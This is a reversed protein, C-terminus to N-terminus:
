TGPWTASASRARTSPDSGSRSRDMSRARQARGVKSRSARAYVMEFGVVFLLIGGALKMAPLTIGYYKFIREGGFAICLLIATATFIAKRAIQKRQSADKNQTMALFPGICAVPDVIAFLTTFVMLFKSLM